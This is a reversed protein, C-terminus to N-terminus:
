AVGRLTTLETSEGNAVWELRDEASTELEFSREEAGVNYRITLSVPVTAYVNFDVSSTSGENGDCSSYQTRRWSSFEDM